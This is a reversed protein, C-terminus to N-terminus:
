TFYVIEFTMARKKLTRFVYLILPWVYTKVLNRYFSFTQFFSIKSKNRSSQSDWSDVYFFALTKSPGFGICKEFTRLCWKYCHKKFPWVVGKFICRFHNWIHVMIPGWQEWYPMMILHLQVISITGFTAYNDENVHFHELIPSTLIQPLFHAM